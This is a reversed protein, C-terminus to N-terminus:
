RQKLRSERLGATARGRAKTRSRNAKLRCQAGLTQSPGLLEPQSPSFSLLLARDARGAPLEASDGDVVLFTDEAVGEADSRVTVHAGAENLVLELYRAFVADRSIVCLDRM